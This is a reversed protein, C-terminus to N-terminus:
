FTYYDALLSEIKVRTDEKKERNLVMLLVSQLIIHPPPLPSKSMLIRTVIEAHITILTLNTDLCAGLIRQTMDENPDNTLTLRLKDTAELTLDWVARVRPCELVKHTLTEVEDCSECIPDPALGFRFLREKTYVEGHLVRLLSNKHKTSTLKRVKEFYNQSENPTLIVGIKFVCLPDQESRCERISKSKLTGLSAFSRGVPYLEMEERTLEPIAWNSREIVCDIISNLKNYKAYRRLQAWELRALMGVKTVGRVALRFYPISRKGNDNLVNKLKASRFMKIIKIEDLRDGEDWLRQRDIRLLDIGRDTVAELKTSCKPFFYDTLDLKNRVIALMPHSTSILRGLARLKLSDDLRAIDLMGLGGFKVPKNMIERKIREPAKSAQYHRNWIFKYLVANIRKIDCEKLVMSQMLFIAQSIGFTKVILVKGLTSLGRRTWMKFHRDARAVVAEVNANRMVAESSHFIIGNIKVEPKCKILHTTELYDVAFDENPMLNRHNLKMIETKDANLELGSRRTLREYENFLSKLSALNRRMLCTVDDAYAFTKPLFTGLQSSHLPEIMPNNEINRLLPEVCM